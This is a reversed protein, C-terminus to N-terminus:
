CLVFFVLHASPLLLLFQFRFWGVASLVTDFEEEITQKKTEGTKSDIARQEYTVMISGEPTKRLELPVTNNLFRIAEEKQMYDVIMGACQQDFGRLYVSRAMVTTPFGFSQLFGACELAV